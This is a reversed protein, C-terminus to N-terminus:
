EKPEPVDEPQPNEPLPEPTPKPSPEPSPEPENDEGSNAQVISEGKALSFYEHFRETTSLESTHGMRKKNILNMDVFRKIHDYGKNGRIKIIVSQKIPQKYAIMALTEQEAKTFESSGTALKNVMSVFDEAVDMKWTNEQRTITIGSSKYKDQLDSIIKKLIIPNVDTLTILEQLTMARGSLFLAAEIKRANEQEMETDLEEVNRESVHEFAM